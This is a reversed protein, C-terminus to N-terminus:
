CNDVNTKWFCYFFGCPSKTSMKLIPSQLKQGNEANDRSADTLVDLMAEFVATKENGFPAGSYAFFKTVEICPRSPLCM